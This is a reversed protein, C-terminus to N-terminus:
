RTRDGSRSSDGSTGKTNGVDKPSDLETGEAASARFALDKRKRHREIAMQKRKEQRKAKYDDNNLRDRLEAGSALREEMWKTKDRHHSELKESRLKNALAQADSSVQVEDDPPPSISDISGVEDGDKKEDEKGKKKKLNRKEMMKKRYEPDAWRKKAAQARKNWKKEEPLEFYSSPLGERVDGLIDFNQEDVEESKHRNESDAPLFRGQLGGFVPKAPGTREHNGNKGASRKNKRINLCMPCCRSTARSPLATREFCHFGGSLFGLSSTESAARVELM